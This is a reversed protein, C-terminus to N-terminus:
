CYPQLCLETTSHMSPTHTGPFLFLTLLTDEGQGAPLFQPCPCMGRSAGPSSEEKGRGARPSELCEKAQPEMVGVEAEPKGHRKDGEKGIKDRTLVNTM